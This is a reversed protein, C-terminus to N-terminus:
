GPSAEPQVGDAVPTEMGQLLGVAPNAPTLPNTNSPLEM